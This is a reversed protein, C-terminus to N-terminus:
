RRQGRKRGVGGRIIAHNSSPFPATPMAGTVVEPHWDPIWVMGPRIPEFDGLLADIAERSRCYTKANCWEDCLKKLTAMKPVLEPPVGDDTIHSIGLYSGAPILERYEAMLQAASDVGGVNPRLLHLVSFMLVAVPEDPNLIRTAMAERWLDEPHRLDAYIVAHRDPDGEEDLLIEAHALAVPENDAYVVKTRRSVDNAIQHINGDSLVGSGVDLFQRVGRQALHRVVRNVFLRNARAIDRFEPFHDLIEIGFSRDIAWNASGDLLYDYVRAVSPHDLDVGPTTTASLKADPVPAGKGLLTFTQNM